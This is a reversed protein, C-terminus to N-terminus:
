LATVSPLITIAGTLFKITNGSPFQLFLDYILQGYPGLINETDNSSLALTVIGSPLITLRSDNSRALIINAGTVDPPPLKIAMTAVTGAIFPIPNGNIDENQFQKNVTAGQEILFSYQGASM